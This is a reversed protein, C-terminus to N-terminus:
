DLMSLVDLHEELQQSDCEILPHMLQSKAELIKIDSFIDDGSSPPSNLNSM